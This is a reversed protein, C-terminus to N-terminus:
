FHASCKNTPPLPLHLLIGAGVIYKDLGLHNKDRGPWWGTYDHATRKQVVTPVIGALYQLHSYEM